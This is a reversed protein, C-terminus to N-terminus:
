FINLKDADVIKVSSGFSICVRVRVAISGAQESCTISMINPVFTVQLMERDFWGDTKNNM